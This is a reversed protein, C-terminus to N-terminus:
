IVEGSKKSLREVKGDVRKISVRTPEGTKPDVLMVNSIHIAAEKKIIGGEPNKADPKQHKTIMGAGEVLVKSKDYLVEIVKRAIFKGDKDKSPTNGAM